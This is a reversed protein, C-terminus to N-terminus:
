TKQWQALLRHAANPQAAAAEKQMVACFDFLEDRHDEWADFSGVTNVDFKSWIGDAARFTALGSEASLGAGSIVYLRPNRSPKNM